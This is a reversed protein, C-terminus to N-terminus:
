NGSDAGGYDGEEEGCLSETKGGGKGVRKAEGSWIVSSPAIRNETSRRRRPLSPSCNNSCSKRRRESQEDTRGDARDDQTRQLLRRLERRRAGEREGERERTHRLKQFPNREREGERGDTPGNARTHAHSRREPCSRRSRPRQVRRLRGNVYSTRLPSVITSIPQTLLVTVPPYM